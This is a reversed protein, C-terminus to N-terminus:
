AKMLELIHVAAANALSRPDYGGELASVIRGNCFKEATKMLDQTLTAFDDYDLKLGGIPDNRHADFGASIFIFEPEFRELSPIIQTKFIEVIKKGSLSPVVQVNVM